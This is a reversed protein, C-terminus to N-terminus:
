RWLPARVCREEDSTGRQLWCLLMTALLVDAFSKLVLGPWQRVCISPLEANVAGTRSFVLSCHSLLLHRLWLSAGVNHILLVLLWGWSGGHTEWIDQQKHRLVEM